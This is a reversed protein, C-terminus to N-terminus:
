AVIIELEAFLAILTEDRTFEKPLIDPELLIEYLKRAARVRDMKKQNRINTAQNLQQLDEPMNAKCWIWTKTLSEHVIVAEHYNTLFTLLLGHANGIEMLKNYIIAAKQGPQMRISDPIWEKWDSCPSTSCSMRERCLIQPALQNVFEIPASSYLDFTNLKELFIKKM